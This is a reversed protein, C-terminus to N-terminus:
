CGRCVGKIKKNLLADEKDPPSSTNVAPSNAKTAPSVTDWRAQWLKEGIMCSVRPEKDASPAASKKPTRGAVELVLKTRIAEKFGERDTIPVVFSDPGGIVCDEYYWDIHDIHSIDTTGNPTANILVPLGTIVIGNQLATDRATVVPDGVNNPGDGSIDIIRRSGRYPNQEFLPMAFKIASSISTRSGRLIPAKMLEDAVTEAAEPGDIQRWPVIVKQDNTASWEFYTLAIRGIPGARLAQLFERSVIAKAFGGRQAALDDIEMSYSTDIAIVLELDVAPRSDGPPTTRAQPATEPCAQTSTLIAILISGISVRWNM